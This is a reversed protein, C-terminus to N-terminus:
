GVSETIELSVMYASAPRNKWHTETLGADMNQLIFDIGMNSYDANQM